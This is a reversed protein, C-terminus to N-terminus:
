KIEIKIKPKNEFENKLKQFDENIMKNIQNEQKKLFDFNKEIEIDYEKAAKNFKKLSSEIEKYNSPKWNYLDYKYKKEILDSGIYYIVFILLTYFIKKDYM